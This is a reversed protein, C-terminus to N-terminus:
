HVTYLIHLAARIFHDSIKYYIFLFLSLCVLTRVLLVKQSTRPYLQAGQDEQKLKIQQKPM